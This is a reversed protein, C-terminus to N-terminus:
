SAGGKRAYFRGVRLVVGPISFEEHLSRAQGDLWVRNPLLANPSVYGQVVAEALKIIDVKRETGYRVREILPSPEVHGPGDDMVAVIPAPADRLVDAEARVAQAKVPDVDELAAIAEDLYLLDGEKQQEADAQAKDLAEQASIERSLEERNRYDNLRDTVVEVVQDIDSLDDRKWGLIVGRKKNLPKLMSDYTKVAEARLSKYGAIVHQALTSHEPTILQGPLHDVATPATFSPKTLAKITM